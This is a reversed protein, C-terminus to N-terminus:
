YIIQQNMVQNNSQIAEELNSELKRYETSHPKRRSRGNRSRRGELLLALVKTKNHYIIYFVVSIFMLFMFYSFFNSDANEADLDNGVSSISTKINTEKEVKNVPKQLKLLRESNQENLDDDDPNEGDNDPASLFISYIIYLVRTVAFM